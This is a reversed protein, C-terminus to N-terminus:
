YFEDILKKLNTKPVGSLRAESVIRKLESKNEESM